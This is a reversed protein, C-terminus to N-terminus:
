LFGYSYVMKLNVVLYAFQRMIFTDMNYGKIINEFQDSFYPKGINKKLKYVLDDYLVPEPIYQQLFTKLGINVSYTKALRVALADPFWVYLKLRHTLAQHKDTAPGM